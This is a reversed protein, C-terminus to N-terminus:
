ENSSEESCPLKTREYYELRMGCKICREEDEIEGRIAIWTHGKKEIKEKSM